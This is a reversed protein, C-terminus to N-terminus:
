VWVFCCSRRRALLWLKLGKAVYCLQRDAGCVVSCWVSSDTTVKGLLVGVRVTSWIRTGCQPCTPLTGSHELPNFSKGPKLRVSLCVCNREERSRFLRVTMGSTCTDSAGSTDHAGHAPFYSSATVSCFLLADTIIVHRQLSFLPRGVSRGRNVFWRVTDSYPQSITQEECAM